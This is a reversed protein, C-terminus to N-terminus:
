KEAVHARGGLEFVHFVDDDEEGEGEEKAVCVYMHGGCKGFLCFSSVFRGSFITRTRAHSRSGMMRVRVLRVYM